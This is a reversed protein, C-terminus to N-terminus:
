LMVVLCQRVQCGGLNNRDDLRPRADICRVQRWFRGKGLHSARSGYHGVGCGGRGILLEPPHLDKLVLAGCHAAAVRMRVALDPCRGSHGLFRSDLECVQALVSFLVATGMHQYVIGLELHLLLLANDKLIVCKEDYTWPPGDPRELDHYECLYVPPSQDVKIGLLAQVEGLGDTFDSSTIIVEELRM